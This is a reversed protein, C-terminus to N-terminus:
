SDKKAARKAKAAESLTQGAESLSMDEIEQALDDALGGQVMLRKLNHRTLALNDAMQLREVARQLDFLQNRTDLLIDSTSKQPKTPDQGTHQQELQTQRAELTKMREKLGYPSLIEALVQGIQTPNSANLADFLTAMDAKMESIEARHDQEADHLVDVRSQLTRIDAMILNLATELRNQYVSLRYTLARLANDAQTPLDTSAYRPEYPIVRTADELTPIRDLIHDDESM